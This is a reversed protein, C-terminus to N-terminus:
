HHQVESNAELHRKTGFDENLIKDGYKVSLLDDHVIDLSCYPKIQKQM